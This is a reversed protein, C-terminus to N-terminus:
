YKNTVAVYDGIFQRCHFPNFRRFTFTLSVVCHIGVKPIRETCGFGLNDSSWSRRFLGINLIELEEGGLQESDEFLLDVTIALVKSILNM